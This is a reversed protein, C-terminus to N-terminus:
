RDGPVCRRRRRQRAPSLLSCSTRTHTFVMATQMYGAASSHTEAVLRALIEGLPAGHDVFSRIYGEDQALELARALESSAGRLDGQRRCLLAKLILIEIEYRM